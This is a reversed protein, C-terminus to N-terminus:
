AAMKKMIDHCKLMTITHAANHFLGTPCSNQLVIIILLSMIKTWTVIPSSKHAAANYRKLTTQWYSAFPTMPSSPYTYNM